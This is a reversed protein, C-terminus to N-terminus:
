RILQLYLSYYANDIGQIILYFQEGPKVDLFTVSGHYEYVEKGSVDSTRPDEKYGAM